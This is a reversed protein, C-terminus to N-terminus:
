CCAENNCSCEEGCEEEWEEDGESEDDLDEYVVCYGSSTEYVHFYDEEENAIDSLYLAFDVYDVWDPAQDEVVEYVAEMYNKLTSAVPHQMKEKNDQIVKDMEDSTSEKEMHSLAERIDDISMLRKM